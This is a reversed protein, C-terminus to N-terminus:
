RRAINWKAAFENCIKDVVDCKVKMSKSAGGLVELLGEYRCSSVYRMMALGGEVAPMSCCSCRPHDFHRVWRRAASSAFIRLGVAAQLREPHRWASEPPLIADSDIYFTNKAFFIRQADVRLTSNVRFIATDHLPHLTTCGDRGKHIASHNPSSLAPLPPESAGHIVIPRAQILLHELIDLILEGPLDGFTAWSRNRYRTTFITPNHATSKILRISRWYSSFTTQRRNRATLKTPKNPPETKKWVKTNPFRLQLRRMEARRAAKAHNSTAAKTPQHPAM